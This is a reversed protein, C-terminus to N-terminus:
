LRVGLYELFQNRARRYAPVQQDNRIIIESIIPYTSEGIERVTALLPSAQRDSTGLYKTKGGNAVHSAHNIQLWADKPQEFPKGVWIGCLTPFHNHKAERQLLRCPDHTMEAALDSKLGKLHRVLDDRFEDITSWNVDTRQLAGAGRRSRLGFGGVSLLWEFAHSYEDLREKEKRYVQLSFTFSEGQSFAYSPVKNKHPLVTEKKQSVKEPSVLLSVPSKKGTGEETQLTGGFFDQEKVALEFTSMPPQIARWWYRWVGKISPSRTEANLPHSRKKGNRDLRTEQWGHMFLPTLAKATYNFQVVAQAKKLDALTM